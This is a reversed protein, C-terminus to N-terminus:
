RKNEHLWATLNEAHEVHHELCGTLVDMLPYGDLWPFLTPSDYQDAPIAKALTLFWRFGGQWLDYVQQWSAGKYQSEIWANLPNVDEAEKEVLDTPWDPNVPERRELVAELRAISLQQWAALHAVTDKIPLPSVLNPTLLEEPTFRPLLNEWLNYQDALKEIVENKDAM